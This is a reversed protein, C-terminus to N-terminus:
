RLTENGTGCIRWGRLGCERDAGRVPAVGLIVLARSVPWIVPIQYFVGRTIADADKWSSDTMFSIRM